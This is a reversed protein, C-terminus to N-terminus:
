EVITHEIHWMCAGDLTIRDESFGDEAFTITFIDNKSNTWEFVNQAIRTHGAYGETELFGFIMKNDEFRIENAERSDPWDQYRCDATSPGHYRVVDYLHSGVNACEENTLGACRATATAAMETAEVRATEIVSETATSNANLASAAQTLEQRANIIDESRNAECALAALFLMLGVVLLRRKIRM